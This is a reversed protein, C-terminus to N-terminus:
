RTVGSQAPATTMATLPQGILSKLQATALRVTNRASILNARAQNLTTQATLVDVITALGLAYRQQQVRLDEEAARISATQAIVQEQGLRRANLYQLALQRVGLRTDRLTTEANTANVTAQAVQAERSFQTFIPYSLSFSLQGSYTYPDPGFGFRNDYGSGGRSYGANLTPFYSAKAAQRRANAATVQATAQAVDPGTEALSVVRASDISVTDLVAIAPDDTVAALPVTSGTLRTLAANADRRTNQATLLALRANAVETTSRLSDSATAAGAIVRRRSAELQQEAQALQTRAAEESERAALATFFQQEVQLAVTYTQAVTNQEAAVVEAKAARLNPLRDASFLQANLSISNSYAWRDGQVVVTEGSQNVRTM